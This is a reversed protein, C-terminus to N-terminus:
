RRSFIGRPRFWPPTMVGRPWWGGRNRLAEIRRPTLETGRALQVVVELTREFWYVERLFPYKGFDIAVREGKM